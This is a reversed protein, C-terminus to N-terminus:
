CSLNINFQMQWLRPITYFPLIFAWEWVVESSYKEWRGEVKILMSLPTAQQFSQTPVPWLWATDSFFGLFFNWNETALLCDSDTKPSAICIYSKTFFLTWGLFFIYSFFHVMRIPQLCSDQARHKSSSNPPTKRELWLRKSLTPRQGLIIM